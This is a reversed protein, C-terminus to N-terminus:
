MGPLEVFSLKSLREGSALKAKSCSDIIQMLGQYRVNSGVQVLIQDFPNGMEAFIGDLKGKLIKANAVPTEGVFIHEIEGTNDGLVTINLTTLNTLVDGPAEGPPTPPGIKAAATAPPLHLNIQQELPAPKFTLIFFALLQFAMDLMATVNLEVEGQVRRKPRFM